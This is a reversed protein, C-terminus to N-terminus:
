MCVPTNAHTHTYPIFLDCLVTCLTVLSLFRTRAAAAASAHPAATATAFGSGFLYFRVPLLFSVNLTERNM